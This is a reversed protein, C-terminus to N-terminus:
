GINNIFQRSKLERELVHRLYTTLIDGTEKELESNSLRDLLSFSEKDILRLLKILNDSVPVGHHFKKHCEGCIIGGEEGDWCNSGPTLPEHCHICAFLEGWFGTLRLLGISFITGVFSNNEHKELARLANVFLDFVQPSKQEENEFADILEGLYFVAAIKNLNEHVTPYSEDIVAGTVHYFTKGDYLELNSLVFPELAGALKAKIKRVGKALVKVKGLRQTFVTLIKDAEGFNMGKIVIGPTKCNM